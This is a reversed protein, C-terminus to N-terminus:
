SSGAFLPSRPNLSRARALSRAAAEVAGTKAQLRAAILWLRWDGANRDLAEEIASRAVALSGFREEALALRLLPEASWPELARAANAEAVATAGDKRVAAGESRGLRLQAAADLTALLVLPILIAATAYAALRRTTTRALLASGGPDESAAGALLGVCAVAVMGIAPLQWIWEVGAAVAFGAFVAVPAAPQYRAGSATRLVISVGLVLGGLVFGALLLLGIVGLEGMTELYLSHANRVFVPLTGHEAWWREFSGAGRGHLSSDRFQDVASSWLQWRGSSNSSLFHGRLSGATADTSGPPAKFAEFRAQADVAVLAAVGGVLLAAGVTVAAARAPEWGRLVRTNLAAFAAGTLLCVLLMGVFAWPRAGGAPSSESTAIAVGALSGALGFLAAAGAAAWRTGSLLVYALVAVCATAAGGRSSALYIVTGAVPLYGVSLVQRGLEARAGVASRLVLPTGCALLIALGNWYGVPFSLRNATDALLEVQPRSAEFLGPFFRSVLAVSGIAAIGIALGDCWTALARRRVTLAVTTFVGLYLSLLVVQPVADDASAVWFLSVATWVTLGALLGGLVLFPWPRALRAGGSVLACAALSFVAATEARQLEGYSGNRYAVAFVVLAIAGSFVYRRIPQPM